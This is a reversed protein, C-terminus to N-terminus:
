ARAEATAKVALERARARAWTEAELVDSVTLSTGASPTGHETVVETVTEMIGSFPLRGALFADVCEENAANFVAPATGGLEGVHRALGVSPFADNDLPFFEWTSAKSWDFAPAADPIREPWGLGIAIPGRMDPPTAQALTSGDTFEVMSHVYSQPHVVVEIRSFPIDYLLHAEIVELGKNVLTASNVTIVPGMAWTPHALADAPTVDALESRTRGRFPGGSATVVLKRVDARKGAALAQFLAAHESDVPIIQGPEAIAKVLPGGVILSEKNALALTRGAELAALTPALGISGTIGNLVTHCPSGALETAADPGALIEPLREGGYRAALAERLAPVADERAVAVARVGLRRAQEALLEVRGGAASLATVRFRDPNRLVLDIAQTGISGTSGLVVVDRRGVAPDFAIHPDALPAPCDSM